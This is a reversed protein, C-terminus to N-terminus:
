TGNNQGEIAAIAAKIAAKLDDPLWARCDSLFQRLVETHRDDAGTTGLETLEYDIVESCTLPHSYYLINWYVGMPDDEVGWVGLPQAGPSFGRYRMGYKWLKVGYQKEAM